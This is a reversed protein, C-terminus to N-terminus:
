IKTTKSEIIGPGFEWSTDTLTAENIESASNSLNSQKFINWKFIQKEISTM